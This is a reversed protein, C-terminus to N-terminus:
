LMCASTLQCCNALWRHNSLVSEKRFRERSKLGSEKVAKSM